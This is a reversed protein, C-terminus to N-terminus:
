HWNFRYILSTTVTQSYSKMHEVNGDPIGTATAFEAIDKKGLLSYRYETRLFLGAPLSPLLSALPTEVGGGTFWGGTSFNPYSFGSPTGATNFLASQTFHAQTYGGDFYTLITPTILFGFRGGAYWAHRETETATLAAGGFVENPTNNGSGTSMFDYDGFAGIVVNGLGPLAFQYDCGAGVRGLWNRGGDTTQVNTGLGGLTVSHDQNWLNYGAGGDVYCGTWSYTPTAVPRAKMPMGM